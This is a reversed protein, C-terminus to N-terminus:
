EGRQHKEWWDAPLAAMADRWHALEAIFADAGMAACGFHATLTLLAGFFKEADELKVGDLLTAAGSNDGNVFAILAVAIRDSIDVFVAPDEAASM